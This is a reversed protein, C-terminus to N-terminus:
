VKCIVNTNANAGFNFTLELPFAFTLELSMKRIKKQPMMSIIDFKLAFMSMSVFVFRQTLSCIKLCTAQDSTTFHLICYHLFFIGSFKNYDINTNSMINSM